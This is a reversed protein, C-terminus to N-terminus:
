WVRWTVIAVSTLADSLLRNYSHRWSLPKYKSSFIRANKPRSLRCLVCNINHRTSVNGFLRRITGFARRLNKCEPFPDSCSRFPCFNGAYKWFTPFYLQIRYFNKVNHKQCIDILNYMLLFMHACTCIFDVNDEKYCDTMVDVSHFKLCILKPPISVLALFKRTVYSCDNWIIIYHAGHIYISHSKWTASRSSTLCPPCPPGLNRRNRDGQAIKVICTFM